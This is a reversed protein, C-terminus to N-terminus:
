EGCLDVYDPISVEKKIVDVYTLHWIIDGADRLKDSASLRQDQFVAIIVAYNSGKEPTPNVVTPFKFDKKQTTFTFEERSTPSGNIKYVECSACTCSKVTVEADAMKDSEAVIRSSFYFM